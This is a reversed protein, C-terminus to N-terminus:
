VNTDILGTYVTYYAAESERYLFKFIKLKNSSITTVINCM